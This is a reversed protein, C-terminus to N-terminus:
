STTLPPPPPAIFCDFRRAFEVYFELEFSFLCVFVVVIAMVYFSLFLFGGWVFLVKVANLYRVVKDSVEDCKVLYRGSYGGIMISLKDIKCHLASCSSISLKLDVLVTLSCIRM